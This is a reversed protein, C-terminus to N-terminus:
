QPEDWSNNCYEIVSPIVYAAWNTAPRLMQMIEAFKDPSRLIFTPSFTVLGGSAWITRLKWDAPALALSTGVSYITTRRPLAMIITTSKLTHYLRANEAVIAEIRGYSTSVSQVGARKFGEHVVRHLVDLPTRAHSFRYQGAKGSLSDFLTEAIGYSEFISVPKGEPIDPKSTDLNFVPRVPNPLAPASASALPLSILFAAFDVDSARWGGLAIGLGAFDIQKASAFVIAYHRTILQEDSDAYAAFIEEDARV